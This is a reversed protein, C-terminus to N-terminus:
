PAVERILEALSKKPTPLRELRRSMARLDLGEIASRLGAASLQSQPLHLAGGMAEAYDANAEQHRDAAGPWPVIIAPVRHARMEAMSGAGARMIALDAAGWALDMRREYAAVYARVGLERYLSRLSDASTPDGALHIVQGQMSGMAEAFAANIPRAGQSGGFVLYTRQTPQLGFHSRAADRDTPSLPTMPMGVHVRKGKLYRATVPFHLAVADAKKAFYRIVRGPLTNAEHLVIPCKAAMLVPFSYFSGFGVVVDPAFRKLIARSQRIGQLIQMAGKVPRGARVEEFEFRDRDFYPNTTLGGGIFLTQEFEEALAQAPHIHGGTGGVAIAIRPQSQPM